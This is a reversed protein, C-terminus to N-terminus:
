LAALSLRIAPICVLALAVLKEILRQTQYYQDTSSTTPLSAHSALTLNTTDAGVAVMDHITNYHTQVTSDQINAAPATDQLAPQITEAIAERLWFAYHNANHKSFHERGM